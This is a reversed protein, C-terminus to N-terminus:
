KTFYVNPSGGRGGAKDVHNISAGMAKQTLESLIFIKYKKVRSYTGIFAKVSYIGYLFIKMLSAEM